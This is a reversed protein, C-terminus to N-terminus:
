RVSTVGFFQRAMRNVFTPAEIQPLHGVGDLVELRSQPLAAHLLAGNSALPSVRDERGVVLLVPIPTLWRRLESPSYTTDVLLTAAQMFARPQTAQMLRSQVALLSDHTGAAVLAGARRGAFHYGGGAIQARRFALISDREVTTIRERGASPGVFMMRSVRGPHHMAFCQATRSGFSNALLGVRSLQLADLFDALADAYARCGPADSTLGDSLMYGPANWGIVRYADALGDYQWRWSMANDGIGHLMVIPPADPRGAEMYSWRDGAFRERHQVAAFRLEPLPPPASAACRGTPQWATTPTAAPHAADHLILVLSRRTSAGTASVHMATQAPAVIPPTDARGVKVWTPTEMCTEGALTVIAESGHHFHVPAQMGPTFIAEMYQAMYPAGRDVRLPGVQAVREGAPSPGRSDAITLRWGRGLAQLITAGPTVARAAAASDPFADLYWWVVSDTPTYPQHRLIWCGGDGNRESVPRCVGGPMPQGALLMPISLLVTGAVFRQVLM